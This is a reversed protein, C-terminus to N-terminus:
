HEICGQRAAHNREYANVTVIKVAGEYFTDVSSVEDGHPIDALIATAEFGERTRACAASIDGFAPDPRRNPSPPELLATPASKGHQCREEASRPQQSKAGASYGRSYACVACKHRGVGAQSAPLESLLQEPATSGHDCHYNAM